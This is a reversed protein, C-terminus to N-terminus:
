DELNKTTRQSTKRESVIHEELENQKKTADESLEKWASAQEDNASKEQDAPQIEKGEQAGNWTKKRRLRILEMKFYMMIWFTEALKLCTEERRSKALLHRYKIEEGQILFQLKSLPESLKFGDQSIGHIDDGTEKAQESISHKEM